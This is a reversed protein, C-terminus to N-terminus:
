KGKKTTAKEPPVIVAQEHAPPIAKEAPVIITKEYTAMKSDVMAKAEEPEVDRVQGEQWNKLPDPGASTTLMKIKM